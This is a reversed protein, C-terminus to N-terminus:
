LYFEYGRASMYYGINILDSKVFRYVSTPSYKLFILIEFLTLLTSDDFSVFGLNFLGAM